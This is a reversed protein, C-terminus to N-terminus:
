MCIGDVPDCTQPAECGGCSGGCRDDGCERGECDPECDERMTVTHRREAGRCEGFARIIFTTEDFVRGSWTGEFIASGIRFIPDTTGSPEAEGEVSTAFNRDVYWEITVTDGSVINSAPTVEFLDIRECIEPTEIVPVTIHSRILATEDAGIPHCALYFDGSQEASEWILTGQENDYGEQFDFQQRPLEPVAVAQVQDCGETRYEFTVSEGAPAPSPSAFWYLIRAEDQETIAVQIWATATQGGTGQAEIRYTTNRDPWVEWSGVPTATTPLAIPAFGDDPVEGMARSCSGDGCTWGDGSAPLNPATCVMTDGERMCAWAQTADPMISGAREELRFMVANEVHWRLVVRETRHIVQPTGTFAHITAAVAPVDNTDVCAVTSAAALIAVLVTARLFRHMM